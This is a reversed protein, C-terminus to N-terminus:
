SNSIARALASRREISLLTNLETEFSAGLKPELGLIATQAAKMNARLARFLLEVEGKTMAKM